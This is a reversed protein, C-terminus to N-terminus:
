EITQKLVVHSAVYAAITRAFKKGNITGLAGTLGSCQEMMDDREAMCSTDPVHPLKTVCDTLYGKLYDLVPQIVFKIFKEGKPDREWVHKNGVLTRILYTLRAVDSNWVSQDEPNDTHIHAIIADGIYHDLTNNNNYSILRESLHTNFKLLQKVGNHTLKNLVPTKKFHTTLFTLASMSKDAVNMSTNLTANSTKQSEKFFIDNDKLFEIQKEKERLLNDKEQILRDKEMLQWKTKEKETAEMLKHELEERTITITRDFKCTKKHRSLGSPHAFNQDCFPCALTGMAITKTSVSVELDRINSKKESFVTKEGSKIIRTPQRSKSYESGKDSKEIFVDNKQKKKIKTPYDVKKKMKADMLSEKKHSNYNKLYNNDDDSAFGNNESTDGINTQDNQMMNYKHKLTGLHKRWNSHDCTSYNCNECNM